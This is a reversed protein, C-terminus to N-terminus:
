AREEGPDAAAWRRASWAMGVLVFLLYLLEEDGFNWEFLGAVLFGTLAATVGLRLGASLDPTRLMVLLGSGAARFLSVYLLVFAALGVIGMSAAIQAPVSHLHGPHERAQPQRYRDYLPRLDQLGVGTWPHDQFMRWGAEWMYTRELNMPHHPDFASHLRMRYDGPALAYVALLAVAFAPIWRPRAASLLVALAAALGLWASRTYTAALAVAGALGVASASWRWRPRRALLAVGAAVTVLLLLQGGFTMYHGSPGRARAAFSAGRAVFFFTGFASAAASSLLLSGLAREGDRRNVAHFAALPVLAPLLGKGLRLLSAPPDQAFLASLVLALLWILAPIDVPSRIWRAGPSRIWLLVTLAACLVAAISMPAISWPLTMILLVFSARSLTSLSPRSPQESSRM